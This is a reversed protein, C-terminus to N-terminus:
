MRSSQDDRKYRAIEFLHNLNVKTDWAAKSEPTMYPYVYKDIMISVDNDGILNYTSNRYQKRDHTTIVLVNILTFGNRRLEADKIASFPVNGAKTKIYGNPGKVLSVITKGPLLGPIFWIFLYILIPLLIVGGAIWMLSFASSFTLGEKLVWSMGAIGGVYFILLIVYYVKSGKIDIKEGSQRINLM